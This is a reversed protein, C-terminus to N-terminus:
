FASIDCCKYSLSYMDTVSSYKCSAGRWQIRNTVKLGPVLFWLGSPPSLLATALYTESYLCLRIRSEERKIGGELQRGDINSKKNTMLYLLIDNSFVAFETRYMVAVYFLTLYNSM